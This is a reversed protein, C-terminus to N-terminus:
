LVKHLDAHVHLSSELTEISFFCQKGQVCADLQQSVRELFGRIMM